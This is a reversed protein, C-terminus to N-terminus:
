RHAPKAEQIGDALKVGSFSACIVYFPLLPFGPAQTWLPHQSPFLLNSTSLPPWTCLDEDRGQRRLSTLLPSPWLFEWIPSSGANQGTDCGGHLCPLLQISSGSTQCAPIHHCELTSLAPVCSLSSTLCFLKLSLSSQVQLTGIGPAPATIAARPGSMANTTAWLICYLSRAQVQPMPIRPPLRCVQPMSGVLVYDWGM